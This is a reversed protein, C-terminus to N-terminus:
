KSIVVSVCTIALLSLSRMLGKGLKRQHFSRSLSYDVDCGPHQRQYLQAASCEQGFSGEHQGEMASGM